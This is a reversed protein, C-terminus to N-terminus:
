SSGTCALIPTGQHYCARWAGDVSEWLTSRRTWRTDGQRLRYTVLCLRNAVRRVAFDEIHLPIEEATRVSVVRWVAERDHCQGSAGVEWFDLATLADFAARTMPLSTRHFLPEHDRLEGLVSDSQGM